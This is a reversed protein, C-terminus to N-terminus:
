LYDIVHLTFARINCYCNKRTDTAFSKSNTKTKRFAYKHDTQTTPIQRRRFATNGPNDRNRHEELNM